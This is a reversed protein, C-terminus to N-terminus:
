QPREADRGFFIELVGPDDDGNGSLLVRASPLGESRVIELLAEARAKDLNSFYVVTTRSSGVGGGTDSRVLVFSPNGSLKKEIQSAKERQVVNESLLYLRSPAKALARQAAPDLRPKPKAPQAPPRGTGIPPASVSPQPYVTLKAFECHHVSDRAKLFPIEKEEIISGGQHTYPIIRDRGGPSSMSPQSSPATATVSIMPRVSEAASIYLDHFYILQNQECFAGAVCLVDISNPKEVILTLEVSYGNSLFAEIKPRLTALRAEYKAVEDGQLNGFMKAQLIQVASGLLAGAQPNFGPTAEIVPELQPGTEAKPADPVATPAGAVAAVESAVPVQPTPPPTTPTIGQGRIRGQTVHRRIEAQTRQTTPQPPLQRTGGGPTGVVRRQPHLVTYADHLTEPLPVARSGQGVHHHELTEGAYAAHQPYFRIWTSDVVPSQGGAIRTQNAPSLRDGYRAQFQGWFYQADRAYGLESSEAGGKGVWPMDVGEAPLVLPSPPSGPGNRAATVGTHIQVAFREGRTVADAAAHAERESDTTEAPGGDVRVGARQQGVHALEHALLRQGDESEPSPAGAGLLIDNGVTVATANVYGASRAAASGRHIRVTGLDFGLGAEMRARTGPELPEGGPRADGDLLNTVARNGASRQLQLLQDHPM